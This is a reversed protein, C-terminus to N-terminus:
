IKEVCVADVGRDEPRGRRRALAALGAASGLMVVVHPLPARSDCMWDMLSWLSWYMGFLLASGVWGDGRAPM